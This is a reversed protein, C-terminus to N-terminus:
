KLGGSHKCINGENKQIKCKYKFLCKYIKKLKDYLNIRKYM